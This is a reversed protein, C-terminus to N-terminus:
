KLTLELINSMAQKNDFDFKIEKIIGNLLRLSLEDVLNDFPNFENGTYSFHLTITQNEESYEATFDINFGSNKFHPLLIQLCLEEFILQTNKITKDSIFHKHGFNEISNICEILDFSQHSIIHKELIRLKKIFQKTKTKQPNFFIQNPTGEEYIIGEDIYFIRNSVDQAFKMEHTVIIMTLGQKALNKIVTLVEGVMTPDLASTPEDFLIIEPEMALARAIAIRQKQGGSLESPYKYAKDTLGVTQLLKFAHEEADTKSKKLITRPALTINELVNKHSFLNFSQFVMGMKRRILNINCKKKTIDEGNVLIHGSTPVELLNLCRLFTSKGTGSPGIISIIDGKEIECNIDRLPTSDEFKKQLNRVSILSM